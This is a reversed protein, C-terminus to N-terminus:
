GNERWWRITQELGAGLTITPTWRTVDRLRRVDAVILPPEDASTELEGVSILDPRGMKEGIQLVLSRLSVPSGSGVNVPGEMDSDLLQVLASGVDHSHLYDRIHGGYACTAPQGRLLSRIVSAVLRMPHEAPGYVYFVRAWAMGLGLEASAKATVSQVAQKCVGYLSRPRLPTTDESCFGHFLDYEACSGSVVAREGGSAAFERVLYLSAEVWRVNQISTLWEGPMACWALHLLREPRVARVVAGAQEQDLLDAKHWDVGDVAPIPSRGGTVAHVEYGREVLFPLAAQGIFGTAGTVLVRTM